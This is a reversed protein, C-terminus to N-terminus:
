RDETKKEKEEEKQTHLIHLYPLSYNQSNRNADVGLLFPVNSGLHVEEASRCAYM